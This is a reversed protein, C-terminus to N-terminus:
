SRRSCCPAYDWVGGGGSGAHLVPLQRQWAHWAMCAYPGRWCMARILRLLPLLRRCCRARWRGGGAERMTRRTSCVEMVSWESHLVLALVFCPVILFHYRFTDQDRDYTVRITRHFRMWYIITFSSALFISKM